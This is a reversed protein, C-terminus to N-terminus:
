LTCPMFIVAMLGITVLNNFLTYGDSVQVHGFDCGCDPCTATKIPSRNKVPRCFAEGPIPLPKLVGTCGRNPCGNGDRDLHGEEDREPVLPAPPIPSNFLEIFAAVRSM